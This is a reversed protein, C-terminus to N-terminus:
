VWLALVLAFAGLIPVGVLLLPVLCGKGATGSKKALYQPYKEKLQKYVNQGQDDMGLILVAKVERPIGSVIQERNRLGQLKSDLKDWLKKVGILDEKTYGCRATEKGAKNSPAIPAEITFVHNCCPCEADGGASLAAPDADLITKCKPCIVDAM